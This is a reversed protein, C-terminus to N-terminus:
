HITDAGPPWFGQRRDIEGEWGALVEFVTDVGDM